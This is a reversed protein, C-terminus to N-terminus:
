AREEKRQSAKLAAQTAATKAAPDQDDGIMPEVSAHQPSLWDIVAEKLTDTIISGAHRVKVLDGVRVGKKGYTFVTSEALTISLGNVVGSEALQEQGRAYMDEVYAAWLPNIQLQLANRDAIAGDLDAQAAAKATTKATVDTVTRALDEQARTIATADGTAQATVLAVQASDRSKVAAALNQDATSISATESTVKEIASQIDSLLKTYDSGLDRADAFVEGVFGYAAETAPQSIAIYERARGEGRAGVVVRSATPRRKTWVVKKLTRGKVSLTRPYVRPEYVDFVLDGGVQQVTCGVGALALAPFFRDPLPHMRTSVGGPVTNGRNLNPAVVLGPIALRNVGNERVAAKIVAEAKGAYTKYDAARQNTIDSGPVQWGAIRHLIYADDIVTVKLTGAESDLEFEDVPGSLLHEDKFTFVIRAGDAMLIGAKPHEDQVVMTATGILPFERPTVKLSLPAGIQGKFVRDKNYITIKFITM